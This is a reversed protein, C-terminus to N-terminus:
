SSAARDVARRAPRDLSPSERITRDRHRIMLTDPDDRADHCPPLALLCQAPVPNVGDAHARLIPQRGPYTSCVHRVSTPM